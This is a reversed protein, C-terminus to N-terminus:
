CYKPYKHNRLTRSQISLHEYALQGFLVYM